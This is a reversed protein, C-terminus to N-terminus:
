LTLFDVFCCLFINPSNYALLLTLYAAKANQLHTVEAFAFSSVM